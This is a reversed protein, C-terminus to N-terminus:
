ARGFIQLFRSHGGPIAISELPEGLEPVRDDTGLIAMWGGEAIRSSAGAIALDMNDVARLAVCDFRRAEPMDEVRGAWVETKLTLTRIVERLFSAKKGQSEGLCVSVEPLLLQVPIGPLGAGSGFDLLTAGRSLRGRLVAGAFLSEGFHRQVIQKPDRIATLNTRANWRLLLDLYNSLRGFMNAPLSEPAVQVLYPALLEAIVDETLSAM